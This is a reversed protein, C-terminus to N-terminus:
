IRLINKKNKKTVALEKRGEKGDTGEFDCVSVWVCISMRLYECM